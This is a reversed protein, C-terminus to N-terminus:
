RIRLASGSIHSMTAPVSQSEGDPDGGRPGGGIRPGDRPGGATVCSDESQAIGSKLTCGGRLGEGAGKCGVVLLVDVVARHGLAERIRLGARMRRATACGRTWGM